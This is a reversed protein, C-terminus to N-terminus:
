FYNLLVGYGTSGFLSYGWDVFFQTKGTLMLLGGAILGWGGILTLVRVFGSLRSLLVTTESVLLAALLFPVALGASFVALLAAGYLATASSSAILLVTGLIPGICPSWGVAFLAGILFSSSPHGVQLWAPPSFNTQGSFFPIKVGLLVLGFFILIAGALMSLAGRWPALFAGIFGAFAGLAIFILSFGIVFALANSMIRGQKGAIFALYGPVIPLTCPALFMLVGALFAAPALLFPDLSSM